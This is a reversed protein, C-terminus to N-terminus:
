DACINESSYDDSRQCGERARKQPCSDALLARARAEEGSDELEVNELRGLANDYADLLAM